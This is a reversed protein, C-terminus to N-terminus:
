MKKMLNVAIQGISGAGQMLIVDGDKVHEDLRAKLSQENVLTVKKDNARIESALSESTIGPIATEGAAYIDFLLLEDALSLVDVFQSHLSQTRTYRHPQFVHVLRKNPWVRRFADITSLIEQPHHGYDDVVIASGNEFQKEGLM